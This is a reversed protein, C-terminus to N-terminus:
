LDSFDVVNKNAVSRKKNGGKKKNSTIPVKKINDDGFLEIDEEMLSVTDLEESNVESLRDQDFMQPPPQPPPVTPPTRSPMPLNSLNISPSKMKYSGSPPPPPAPTPQFSNPPPPAKQQESFGKFMSSLLDPNPPGGGGGGGIQNNKFISHTIHFMFASGGLMCLLELEPPMAVRNKWKWYLKEFVDDYQNINDMVNESWGDLCIDFPDYRRNLFELTSVCFMLGKRSFNVSADLDIESKVRLVESRLEMVPTRLSFVRNQPIIGRRKLRELKIILDTKEDEVTAFGASPLEEVNIEEDVMEQQVNEELEENNEEPIFDEQSVQKMPNMFDQFSEDLNSAATATQEGVGGSTEVFIRDVPRKGRGSM